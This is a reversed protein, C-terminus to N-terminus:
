QYSQRLLLAINLPSHVTLYDQASSGRGQTGPLASVTKKDEVAKYKRRQPLLKEQLEPTCFDYMDLKMQYKVDQLILIPFSFLGKPYHSM